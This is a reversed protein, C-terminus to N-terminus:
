LGAAAAASRLSLRGGARTSLPDKRLSTRMDGQVTQFSLRNLYPSDGHLHDHCCIKTGTQSIHQSTRSIAYSKISLGIIYYDCIYSKM